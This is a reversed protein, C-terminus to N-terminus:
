ILQRLTSIHHVLKKWKDEWEGSPIWCTALFTTVLRFCIIRAGNIRTAMNNGAAPFFWKHDMTLPEMTLFTFRPACEICSRATYFHSLFCSIQIAFPSIDWYSTRVTKTASQRWRIPAQSQQLSGCGGRKRRLGVGNTEAHLSLIRSVIKGSFM